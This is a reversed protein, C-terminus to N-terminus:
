FENKHKDAWFVTKIQENIIGDKAQEGSIEPTQRSIPNNLFKKRYHLGCSAM